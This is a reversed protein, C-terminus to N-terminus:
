LLQCHIHRPNKAKWKKKSYRVGEVTFLELEHQPPSTARNAHSLLAYSWKIKIFDLNIGQISLKENNVAYDIKQIKICSANLIAPFLITLLVSIYYMVVSFLHITEKKITISTQNPISKEVNYWHALPM